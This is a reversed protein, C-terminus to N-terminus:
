LGSRPTGGRATRASYVTIAERSTTTAQGRRSGLRMRVRLSSNRYPEFDIGKGGAYDFPLKHLEALVPPFAIEFVRM